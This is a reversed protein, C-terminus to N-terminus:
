FDMDSHIFGKKVLERRRTEYREQALSLLSCQDTETEECMFAQDIESWSM